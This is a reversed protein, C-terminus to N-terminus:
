RGDSSEKEETWIDGKGIGGTILVTIGATEPRGALHKKARSWLHCHVVIAGPLRGCKRRHRALAVQVTHTLSRKRRM